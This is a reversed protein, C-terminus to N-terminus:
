FKRGTIGATFILSYYKLSGDFSSHLGDCDAWDFCTAYGDGVDDDDITTRNTDSRM